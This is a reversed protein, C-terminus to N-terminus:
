QVAKLADINGYGFKSNRNPYFEGSRRLKDLVQDRSMSPNRAWILAAIGATTATAVSSGGVYNRAGTNFGIVPVNRNNDGARQMIITFDIKNGDHCNSCRNYGNDKIGTVAVTESMSAPFIVGYWNTFSTSTGGAAVILKGRNYAYRVADKVNGISWPYGVSMSIIKVDGRNGLAKLANSVGKREHYDELVVDSTGRYSVLNCNYAVGVPMFDNNRPSALTSAMQTGHGCRDNPGDVNNSWWWPSDIYTGYREISRGNSAGDNFGNSGLLNQNGSIGTDILGVTIGAGTSYNWAQSINHRDFNWPFWANPSILRYDAGNISEGSQNCGFDKQQIRDEKLYFTYGAPQIYRIQDAAQLAVVTELETVTVDVYNLIDDDHMVIKSKSLQEEEQVISFINEKASILESSRKEISFSQDQNGYGVSLLNNGHVAASWLVVAPAKTWNVDGKKKLESAIYENVESISLLKQQEISNSNPDTIELPDEKSCSFLFLLGLGLFTLKKM